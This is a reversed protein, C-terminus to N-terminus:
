KINLIKKKIEDSCGYFMDSKDIVNNMNFNKVNIEQLSKCDYFMKKMNTVNDTNFNSLDIKKLSTCGSFMEGFDTVNSTNFKSLNIEELSSCKSFMGKMNIVNNTCCNSLDLQKLAKCGHFMMKMNTINKRSFKKFLISEFSFNNIFLYELSQVQHDIRITIKTVHDDKSYYNRKIEQKNDNFYIHFYKKYNIDKVTIIESFKVNNSPTLEIVISSYKYLFEKYDNMTLDLRKKTKNNYKVIQYLIKKELINFIKKLTYDSKINDLLLKSAEM